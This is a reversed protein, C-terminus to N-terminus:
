YHSIGSLYMYQGYNGYSYIQSWGGSNIVSLISFESIIDYTVWYHNASDNETRYCNQNYRQSGTGSVADRLPFGPISPMGGNFTGGQIQVQSTQNNRNYHVVTKFVGEYGFPSTAMTSADTPAFAQATVYDKRATTYSGDGVIIRQGMEYAQNATTMASTAKNYIDSYKGKSDYKSTGGTSGADPHVYTADTQSASGSNTVAFKISAGPTECDIRVQAKGTPAIKTASNSSASNYATGNDNWATINRTSVSDVLKWGATIDAATFENNPESAGINHSYRFVRVVPQAVTKGWFNYDTVKIASVTNGANDRLCTGDMLLAWHQGEPIEDNFTITITNTGNGTVQTSNIDVKHQHYGTKILVDRINKVTGTTGFIDYEPALVFKTTQDPSGDANIGHTYKMYPGEPRATYTQLEEAGTGNRAITKMLTERDTSDLQNYINMFDESSLVAPIAWNDKNTTNDAGIRQLTIYGKEVYVPESFELKVVFKDSTTGAHTSVGGKAPVRNTIEPAKGDLIIGSRYGQGEVKYDDLINSSPSLNYRDKLSGATFSSIKIGSIDANEPVTYEATLTKSGSATTAAFTAEYNGVNSSDKFSIKANATTLIVTDDFSINFKIKDGAKYFGDANSISVGIVPPFTLQVDVSVPDPFGSDNGAIDIQKATIYSQGAPLTYEGNYKTWSSGGNLSYYLAGGTEQGTLDTLTLIQATTKPGGTIASGNLKIAPKSPAVTDIVVTNSATDKSMAQVKLVNGNVDKIYSANTPDFYSTGNLALTGNPTGNTDATVTHTFVAVAKTGSLSLSQFNFEIDKEDSKLILKPAGSILLAENATLEAKIVDDKKVYKSGNYLTGGATIKITEFVPKKSDIQLVSGTLIKGTINNNINAFGSGVSATEIKIAATTSNNAENGSLYLYDNNKCVIGKSEVNEPVTYEFNLTTTNSGSKYDAYKATTDTSSYYIKLKPVGTVKVAGDFNVQFTLVDGNKYTGNPKDTTISEVKPLVSLVVTRRDKAENGLKDKVYFEFTPQPSKEKLEQLVKKSLTITYYDGSKNLKKSSDTSNKTYIYETENGVVTIKYSDEDMGLGSDKTGKFKLNLTQTEPNIVPMDQNQDAVQVEITPAVNDGSVLLHQFTENGNVDNYMLGFYKAEKGGNTGFETLLNFDFSYTRKHWNSNTSDTFNPDNIGTMWKLIIGNDKKEGSSDSEIQSAYNAIIAKAKANKKETTNLEATEPVYVIKIKGEASRKDLTYGKVEFTSDTNAKMEPITNELPSEVYLLPIEGDTITTPFIKANWIGNSDKVCVVLKMVAAVTVATTPIIHTDDRTGSLPNGTYIYEARTTDTNDKIRNAESFIADRQSENSILSQATVGELQASSDMKLAVKIEAIQDDDFYDIPITNNILMQIVNNVSSSVQIKPIDSEPYWLMWNVDGSISNGHEDECEYAILFYHKGTALSTDAKVLEDHTFTVVPTYSGESIKSIVEQGEENKLIIRTKNISMGDSVKGHISFSQNQPIDKNVANETDIEQLYELANLNITIGSGKEIYWEQSEPATDDVILTIVKKSKTSENGAEDNATIMITIEGEDEKSLTMPFFWNDGDITARGYESGSEFNSIIVETVGINDTCTGQLLFSLHVKDLNKPSTITIEPAALDVEEGLGISCAITTFLLSLLGVSLFFKKM